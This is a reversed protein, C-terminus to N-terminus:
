EEAEPAEEGRAGSPRHERTAAIDSDRGMRRQKRAQKIRREVPRLGSLALLGLLTGAVAASHFGLGASLGVAATLWLNAATTLGRVNAGHHLIAGGGLFGIGVVVQSAIRTIDGRVGADLRGEEGAGLPVVAYMSAVTFLCAGLSVLLHTRLGAIQGRLERELGLLGGLGAAACLRLAVTLDDM